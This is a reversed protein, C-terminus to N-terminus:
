FTEDSIFERARPTKLWQVIDGTYGKKEKLTHAVQVLRVQSWVLSKSFYGLRYSNM